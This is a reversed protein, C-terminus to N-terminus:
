SIFNISFITLWSSFPYFLLFKNDYVNIKNNNGDVEIAIKIVAKMAILLQNFSDNFILFIGLVLLM